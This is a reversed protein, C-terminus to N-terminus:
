EEKLEKGCWPCYKIPKFDKGLPHELDKRIGYLAILGDIREM